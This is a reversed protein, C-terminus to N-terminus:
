GLLVYVWIACASSSYDRTRYLYSFSFAILFLYSALFSLEFALLTYNSKCASYASWHGWNCWSSRTFNAAIIWSLRAHTTSQTRCRGILCARDTPRDTARHAHAVRCVNERWARPWTFGPVPFVLDVRTHTADCRCIPQKDAPRHRWSPSISITLGAPCCWLRQCASVSANWDTCDKLAVAWQTVVIRRCLSSWDSPCVSM